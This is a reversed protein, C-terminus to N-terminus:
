AVSILKSVVPLSPIAVFHGPYQRAHGAGQGLTEDVPPARDVNEEGEAEHGDDAHDTQADVVPHTLGFLVLEVVSGVGGGDGGDGRGLSEDRGVGLSELAVLSAM